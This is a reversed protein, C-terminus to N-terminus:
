RGASNLRLTKRLARALLGAKGVAGWRSVDSGHDIMRRPIRGEADIHMPREAERFAGIAIEVAMHPAFGHILRPEDCGVPALDRMPRRQRRPAGHRAHEEAAAGWRQHRGRGDARDEPRDVRRPADLFPGLDRELGIRGADLGLAERAIAGGADVPDREAHLRQVVGVQAPEPARMRGGLREGGHPDRRRMELAEGEVEDIGPGPLRGGSPRRLEFLRDAAGGLVEREVLKGDLGAGPELAQLPGAREDYRVLVRRAREVIEGLLDALRAAERGVLDRVVGPGARFGTM